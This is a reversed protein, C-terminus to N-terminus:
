QHRARAHRRRWAVGRAGRRADQRLRDHDIRREHLAGLESAKIGDALPDCAEVAAAVAARLKLPGVSKGGNEMLMPVQPWTQGLGLKEFHIAPAGALIGDYDGPFRQAM